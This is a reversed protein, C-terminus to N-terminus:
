RRPPNADSPPYSALAPVPACTDYDHVVSMGVVMSALDIVLCLCMAFSMATPFTEAPDKVEGACAGVLDFRSAGRVGAGM